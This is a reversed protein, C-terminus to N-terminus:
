ETRGAVVDQINRIRQILEGASGCLAAKGRQTDERLWNVVAMCLNTKALRRAQKDEVAIVDKVSESFIPPYYAEFNPHEFSQFNQQPWDPFKERLKQAAAKGAEDGDTIAWARGKYVPELHTFVFLRHLDVFRPEVDSAGQAAVTRLRGVLRPCFWPVIFERVISEASAEELVLWADYLEYDSLDYGLSELLGRRASPNNAVESLASEPPAVNNARETRWIRAGEVTGLRRLVVNSHTSVIFQNGAATSREVLDLLARLATPHLDNEIEELLFIKNEAVLLEVILGLAQTVGSGLRTIPIYLQRIANVELGAMKGNASPFTTVVFGLVSNCAQQYLSNLNTSTLCRDIKAVLHHLTSGTSFAHAASVNETVGSARRDSLYPVLLNEPQSSAFYTFTAKRDKISIQQGISNNAANLEIQIFADPSTPPSAVFPRLTTAFREAEVDALSIGIQADPRGYRVSDIGISQAQLLLVAQILTSKGTNNEGAILTISPSFVITADSYCRVNHLEIRAVYM